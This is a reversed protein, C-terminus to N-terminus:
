TRAALFSTAVGGSHEFKRVDNFGARHLLRAFEGRTYFGGVSQPLYRYATPHGSIKKGLPALVLNFAGFGKQALASQPRMFELVLLKGGPRLVRHLERLGRETDEFNRVGFACTAADFSADAFPLNLADANILQLDRIASQPNKLAALQLMPLAFDAAIIACQPERRLIEFALDGTGCCLDLVRDGRRVGLVRAARRRWRVDQNCSLLHNLLDYRHAIDSFMARVRPASKDLSPSLPSNVLEPARRSTASTTKM